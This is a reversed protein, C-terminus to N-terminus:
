AKRAWGFAISAQNKDVEHKTATYEGREVSLPSVELCPRHRPLVAVGRLGAAGQCVAVQGFVM